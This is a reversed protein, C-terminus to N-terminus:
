RLHTNDTVWKACYVCLISPTIKTGKQLNQHLLHLVLICLMQSFSFCMHLLSSTSYLIWLVNPNSLWTIMQINAVEDPCLFPQTCATAWAVVISRSSFPWSDSSLRNYQCHIQRFLTCFRWSEIRLGRNIPFILQSCVRNASMTDWSYLCM